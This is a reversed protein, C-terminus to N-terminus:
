ASSSNRRPNSQSGLMLSFPYSTWRVFPRITIVSSLTFTTCPTRSIKSISSANFSLLPPEFSLLSTKMPRPNSLSGVVRSVKPPDTFYIFRVFSPGSGYIATNLLKSSSYQIHLQCAVHIHCLGHICECGFIESLLVVDAM